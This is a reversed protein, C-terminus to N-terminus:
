RLLCSPFPPPSSPCAFCFQHPICRIPPPPFLVFRAFRETFLLWVSLLLFLSFFIASGLPADYRDATERAPSCLGFTSGQLASSFFLSHPFSISKVKVVLLRVCRISCFFSCLLCLSLSRAKKPIHSPLHYVSSFPLHLCTRYFLDM